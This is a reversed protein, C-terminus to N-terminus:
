VNIIKDVTKLVEEVDVSDTKAHNECYPFKGYVECLECSGKDKWLYISRENLPAKRRPNTPGFISIVPVNVASAVHMLGADHTIFLDCMKILAAAQKLKTKGACSFTKVGTKSMIDSIVKEDNKNGFFVIKANYPKAMREVLKKYNEEPWTRPSTDKKPDKTAAPAIGIIVDSKSIKNKKLFNLAFLEDKKTLIIDMHKGTDSINAFKLLEIYYDIEHKVNKYEVNYTNSFGEGFRDFGIRIPIRCWYAFMSALYSKDLIFCVDYREKRLSKAFKRFYLLRSIANSEFVKNANFTIIKDIYKNGAVVDKFKEATIYTIEADTYKRKLARILPTTMLIDGIAGSKIIAIKEVKIFSPKAM